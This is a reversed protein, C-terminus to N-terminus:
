LMFLLVLVDFPGPSNYFVKCKDSNIGVHQTDDWSTANHPCIMRFVLPQKDQM